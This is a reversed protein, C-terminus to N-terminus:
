HVERKKLIGVSELFQDAATITKQYYEPNTYNFFGHDQGEYLFLDCRRNLQEMKKKFGQATSVPILKDKTGLFIATPPMNEKINHAPSIDQWYDRVRDYGWGGEPGNDFVPNFLILANPIPSVSLHDDDEDYQTLTAAAAAVHGGASGGGAVIMNPDVGLEGAHQRLWRIASKGDKVCEIPSTGHTKKVRYEASIAVMGRSAFYECHPFFQSPSGSIWGGGFFFIAAPRKDTQSWDSPYFVHLKLQIDGVTKYTVTTDPAFGQINLAFCISSLLCVCLCISKMNMDISKWEFVLRYENVQNVCGSYVMTQLFDRRKRGKGKFKNTM